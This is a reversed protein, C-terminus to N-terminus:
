LADLADVADGGDTKDLRGILERIKWEVALLAFREWRASLELHREISASITEHNAEWEMSRRIFNVKM